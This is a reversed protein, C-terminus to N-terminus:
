YMVLNTRAEEEDDDDDTWGEDLDQELKEIKEKHSVQIDISKELLKITKNLTKSESRNKKWISHLDESIRNFRYICFSAFGIASILSTTQLPYEQLLYVM